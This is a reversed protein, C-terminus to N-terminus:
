NGKNMGWWGIHRVVKHMWEPVLQMRGTDQHHHWIYGDINKRGAAIDALQEPTFRSAPIEGRQIAAALDKTGLVMQSDYSAKRFTDIDIRTDYSLVNDFIPFGRQNAIIELASQVVIEAGTVNADGYLMVAIDRGQQYIAKITEAHPAIRRAIEQAEDTRLEYGFEKKYIEQVTTAAAGNDFYFVYPISALGGAIRVVGNRAMSYGIELTALSSQSLFLGVNDNSFVSPTRANLYRNAMKIADDNTLEPYMRKFRDAAQQVTLPENNYPNMARDIAMQTATERTIQYQRMYSRIIPELDGLNNIDIPNAAGQVGVIRMAMLRSQAETLTPNQARLQSATSELQEARARENQDTIESARFGNRLLDM